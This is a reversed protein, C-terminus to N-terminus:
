PTVEEVPGDEDRRRQALELLILAATNSQVSVTERPKGIVRDLVATCAALAIKADKHGILAVLRAAAGPAGGELDRKVGEIVKPRGGPNGSVGKPFPRGTVRVPASSEAEAGTLAAPATPAEAAKLEAGREVAADRGEGTGEAERSPHSRGERKRM